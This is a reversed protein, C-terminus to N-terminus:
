HVSHLVFDRGFSKISRGSGSLRRLRRELGRRRCSGGDRFLVQIWLPSQGQVYFQWDKAGPRRVRLKQTTPLGSTIWNMTPPILLSLHLWSVPSLHSPFCARVTAPATGCDTGVWCKERHQCSASGSLVVLTKLFAPRKWQLSGSIASDAGAM